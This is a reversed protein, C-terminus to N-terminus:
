DTHESKHDNEFQNHQGQRNRDFGSKNRDRKIEEPQEAKVQDHQAESQYFFQLFVRFFFLYKAYCRFDRKM